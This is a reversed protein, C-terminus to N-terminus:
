GAPPEAPEVVVCNDLNFITVRRGSPNYGAVCPAQTKDHQVVQTVTVRQLWMRSGRRVPYCVTSGAKIERGLFDTAQTTSM